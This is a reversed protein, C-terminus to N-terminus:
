EEFDSPVLGKKIAFRTLDAVSHLELKEMIKRKRGDVTKISIGLKYAIEKGSYGEAVLKLMQSEKDTLKEIPSRSDQEQGSHTISDIVVVAAKNCLYKKGACVTHIANVLEDSLCDKLIYGDAGSKLMDLVFQKHSFGTLALVKINSDAEKIQRTAEIGNLAPMSIDMIVIDPKLEAAQQVAESGDCAEGVIALDDCDDIVLRIGARLIEHDDVALIGISM